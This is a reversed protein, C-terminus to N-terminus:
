ATEAHAAIAIDHEGSVPQAAFASIGLIVAMAPVAATILKEM